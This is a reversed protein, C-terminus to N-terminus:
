IDKKKKLLFYISTASLSTVVALIVLVNRIAVSPKDKIYKTPIYGEIWEGDVLVAIKSVNKDKELLRVSTGDQLCDEFVLNSLEYDNYLNTKSVTEISYEDYVVNSNLTTVTFATPIYGAFEKEGLNFKAYYYTQGLFEVTFQPSIETNKDLTIQERDNLLNYTGNRTLIPYYLVNVKPTVYAKQNVSTNQTLNECNANSLTLVIDNQGALIHLTATGQSLSIPCVYIYEEGATALKDLEFGNETQKVIFANEDQAIKYSKLQTSAFNTNSNNLNFDSPIVLDKISTTQIGYTKSIFENSNTLIYFDDDIYDFAFCTINQNIVIDSISQSTTSYQKLTNEDLIFLNGALDTSLKKINTCSDIIKEPITYVNQKEKTIKIVDKNNALYINGFLDLCIHKVSYNIPIKYIRDNESLQFSNEKEASSLAQEDIKYVEPTFNETGNLIYFSNGQFFVDEVRLNLASTEIDYIKDTKFNLFKLKCSSDGANYVLFAHEVGLAFKNPLTEGILKENGEVYNKYNNLDYKDVNDTNVITLKYDDLVALNDGYKQMSVAQAQGNVRNYATKGSAIAYGTFVLKNNDIKFEQITNAQIILLNDGKFSLNSPNTIKGLEYDLNKDNDCNLTTYNGNIDSKVIDGGALLLYVHSQNAIIKLPLNNKFYTNEPAFLPTSEKSIVDYKHLVDDNNLFFFYNDNAAIPTNEKVNKIQQHATSEQFDNQNKDYFKVINNFTTALLNSNLAFDNGSINLDTKQITNDQSNFTLSYIRAYDNILLSTANFKLVQNIEEFNNFEELLVGNYEIIFKDSDVIATIQEDSYVDKPSNLSLCELDTKPLYKNVEILSSAQAVKPTLFTFASCIILVAFLLTIILNKSKKTFLNEM